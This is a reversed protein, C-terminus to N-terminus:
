PENQAREDRAPAGPDGSTGSPGLGRIPGVVPSDWTIPDAEGPPPPLLAVAPRVKDLHGISSNYVGYGCLRRLVEGSRALLETPVGLVQNEQPRLWGACYSLALAHRPADTANAGGGHWLSGLYVAVSGAPMEIPVAEVAPAPGRPDPAHPDLHSGPVVVTAGNAATFDDLAWMTTCVLPVPHPRPLRYAGDDVHLPQAVEGPEISIATACSLLCGEDLVAEVVGLVAPHVAATAFVDGKALLNYTRRTLRGEFRSTGRTDPSGHLGTVAERLARRLDPGVAGEVVTFGRDLVETAHRDPM